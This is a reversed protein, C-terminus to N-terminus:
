GTMGEKVVLRGRARGEDTFEVEFEDSDLSCAEHVSADWPDTFSFTGHRGEQDLFFQRLAETEIEDLLELRVVWGKLGNPMERWRQEAADVFRLVRTSFRNSRELPYQAVAGTKLVPFV